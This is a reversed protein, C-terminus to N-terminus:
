ATECVCTVWTAAWTDECYQMYARDRGWWECTETHIGWQSGSFDIWKEREDARAAKIVDCFCSCRDCDKEPEFDPNGQRIWVACACGDKDKAQPCLPDHTM